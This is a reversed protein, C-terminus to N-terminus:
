SPWCERASRAKLRRQAWERGGLVTGAAVVIPLVALVCVIVGVALNQPGKQQILWGMCGYAVVLEIIALLSATATIVGGLKNPGPSRPPWQRARRAMRLQPDLWVRFKGRIALVVAISTTVGSMLFCLLVIMMAIGTVLDDDKGRQINLVLAIIGAAAILVFTLATIRWFGAALYFWACVHGRRQDPDCRWLWLASLFHNGGLGLSAVMVSIAPDASLEFLMWAIGLVLLWGWHRTISQGEAFEPELWSERNEPPFESERKGDFRRDEPLDFVDDHSM